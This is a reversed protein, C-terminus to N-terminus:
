ILSTRRPPSGLVSFNSRRSLSVAEQLPNGLVRCRTRLWRAGRTHEDVACAAVDVKDGNPRQALALAKEHM